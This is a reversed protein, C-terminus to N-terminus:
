RAAAESETKYAKALGGIKDAAAKLKGPDAGQIAAEGHVRVLSGEKFCLFTPMASVRYESVVPRLAAEDVNVKAFAFSGAAAHEAALKEFVPAIAKCPPCWTAFFDVMVYRNAALLQRFEEASTVNQISM